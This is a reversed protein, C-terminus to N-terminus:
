TSEWTRAVTSISWLTAVNKAWDIRELESSSSTITSPMGCIRVLTGGLGGGVCGLGGGENTPPTFPGGAEGRPTMPGGAEGRPNM